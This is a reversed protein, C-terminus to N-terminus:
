VGEAPFDPVKQTAVLKKIMASERLSSRIIEVETKAISNEMDETRNATRKPEIKRSMQPM